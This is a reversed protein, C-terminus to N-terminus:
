RLAVGPAPSRAFQQQRAALSTPGGAPGCEVWNIWWKGAAPDLTATGTAGRTAAFVYAGGDDDPQNYVLVNSGVELPRGDWSHRVTASKVADTQALDGDLTFRLHRAPLELSLIEYVDPRDALPAALGEDGPQGVFTAGSFDNVTIAAADAYAAGTWVRTVAAASGGFPLAATLKFRAVAAAAGGLSRVVYWRRSQAHQLVVVTTGAALSEGPPLLWDHATVDIGSDAHGGSEVGWLSATASGGAALPGDLKGLHWQTGPLLVREGAGPLWLAIARSGPLWVSELHDMVYSLSEGSAAFKDTASPALAFDRALRAASADVAGPELAAPLEVLDCHPWDALGLHLGAASSSLLLPGAAAVRQARNAAQVLRNLRAASLPRGSRFEAVQQPM